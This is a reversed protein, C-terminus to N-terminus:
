PTAVEIAAQRQPDIFAKKKYPAASEKGLQAEVDKVDAYGLKKALKDDLNRVSLVMKAARLEPHTMSTQNRRRIIEAILKYETDNDPKANLKGNSVLVTSVAGAWVNDLLGPRNIHLDLLLAQTLNSRCLDGLRVKQGAFTGTLDRVIALRNFGHELFLMRFAPDKMAVVCRYSWILERLVKKDADADLTKGNLAFKGTAPIATGAKKYSTLDLGYQGFYKTFLAANKEKVHQLAGQLEGEAGAGGATQQFPGFSLYQNDWTNISEIDGENGAAGAWIQRSNEDLAPIGPAARPSILAEYITTLEPRGYLQLGKSEKSGLMWDVQADREHVYVKADPEVDAVKMVSLQKKNKVIYFFPGPPASAELYDLLRLPHYHYVLAKGSTRAPLAVGKAEADKWWMYENAHKQDEPTLNVLSAWLANAPNKDTIAKSVVKEWDVAWSSTCRVISSRLAMRDEASLATYYTSVEETRIFPSKDWAMPNLFKRLKESRALLKGAEAFVDDDTDDDLLQWAGLDKDHVVNKESFVELHVGHPALAGGKASTSVPMELPGVHGLEEGGAVPYNLKACEGSELAQLQASFEAVEELRNTRADVWLEANGDEPVRVKVFPGQKPEEMLELITGKVLVVPAGKGVFKKKKKNEEVQPYGNLGRRQGAGDLEVAVRRLPLTTEFSRALFPAFSRLWPVTLAARDSLDLNMYLSFFKVDRLKWKEPDQEKPDEVLSAQHEVLVFDQSGFLLKRSADPKRLRAAVIRGAAISMVATGRPAHLHIGPHWTQSAGLPFWGGQGRENNQYLPEAKLPDFDRPSQLPGQPRLPFSLQTRFFIERAAM